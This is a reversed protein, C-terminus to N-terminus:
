ISSFKGELAHLNEHALRMHQLQRGVLESDARILQDAVNYHNLGEPTILESPHGSKCFFDHMCGSQRHFEPAEDVAVVFLAPASTPFSQLIPSNRSACEDTLHLEANLFSLRIPELDYIGGILCAGKIVDAPMEPDFRPWDTAMLMAGLHAGASHGCIYIRDRDCGYKEANHWLWAIMARNDDVIEDMSSTPALRYNNIVTAIGHPRMGEAVFSYDSKDLSYWYGGHIFLYIPAGANAAPFIDVTQKADPGFSVDLFAPLKQRTEESWQAWQAFHKQYPFRKRNNYQDDLGRQDYDLFVNQGLM